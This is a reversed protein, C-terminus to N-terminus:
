GHLRALRLLREYTRKATAEHDPGPTTAGIVADATRPLEVLASLEAVVFESAVSRVSLEDALSARGAVITLVDEFDHSGLVDSRGRDRFATFKSALLHAPDFIRIAPGDPLQVRWPQKVGLAYWRNTFGLPRASTPMVDISLDGTRWRCIVEPSNSLGHSRLRDEWKALQSYDEADVVCDVDRTARFDTKGADLYLPITAGGTFVLEDLFPSLALAAAKLLDLPSDTM